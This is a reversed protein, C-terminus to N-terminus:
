VFEGLDKFCLRLDSQEGACDSAQRFGALVRHQNM